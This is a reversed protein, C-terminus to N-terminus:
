DIRQKPILAQSIMSELRKKTKSNSGPKDYVRTLQKNQYQIRLSKFSNKMLTRNLKWLAIIEKDHSVQQPM